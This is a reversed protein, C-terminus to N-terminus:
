KRMAEMAEVFAKVATYTEKGEMLSKVKELVVVAELPDTEPPKDISEAKKADAIAKSVEREVEAQAPAQAPIEVAAPAMGCKCCASCLNCDQCFRYQLKACGVCIEGDPSIRKPKVYLNM